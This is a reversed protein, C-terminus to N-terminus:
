FSYRFILAINSNRHYQGLFDTDSGQLITGRATIRWHPGFSQSYEIKGLYGNGNQRAVGEFILSRNTDITWSARGAFARALGRDPDFTVLNRTATVIEGTYGAIFLWEGSQRELQIVYLAYEDTQKGPSQFYAGEAKITFWHLPLALDGGYTRIKPYFRTLLLGTTRIDTHLLPLHNFGDFFSLSYEISKAIRNWRVGFQPGGPYEAGADRLPVERAEAPIVVWRQNLLPMRSPTFRPVYILDLSTSASAVTLRGGTVALFDNDIVGLYDRPAFRDTPNLIDTKGWRIFQKGLELTVPGRSFIGSLRRIALAPRQISRDWYAVNWEREVQLHTDTQADFSANFIWSTNLKLSPEDRLLAEGIARGSDNPATHPYLTVGTEWFGRNTFAQAAAPACTILFVLACRGAHGWLIQLIPVM